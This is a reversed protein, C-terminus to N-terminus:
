EETEEQEQDELIVNAEMKIKLLEDKGVIENINEVYVYDVESNFKLTSEGDRDIKLEQFNFLGLKVPKNSGKRALIKVNQGTFLITKIINTKEEFSFKFSLDVSKNNKINFGNYQGVASVKLDVTEEEKVNEIVEQKQKAM